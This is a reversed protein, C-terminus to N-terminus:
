PVEFDVQAYGNAKLTVPKTQPAEGVPSLTLYLTTAKGTWKYTCFFWGDEDSRGSALTEGKINRLVVKCGQLVQTTPLGDYTTTAKAVMGGVGPVKKFANMSCVSDSASEMGDSFAFLYSARDPILPQLTTPDIADNGSPGGRAYGTSRKLGYDLHMNLYVFGTSPVTLTVSVTRSSGLRQPAYDSLVIQTSDVLFGNGPLYCEQGNPGPVVSVGDYAHIPQAGQTVYPYPITLNLTVTTGPRGNYFLNFYTQGPNSANLRYQPFNQTDQTFLLRFERCATTPDLDYTCLSSDTVVVRTTPLCQIVQVHRIENCGDSVTWRREVRKPCTGTITDDYTITVPGCLDSATPTGTKAPDIDCDTCALNVDGPWAAIPPVTDRVEITASCSAANGCADVATWTRTVRYSQPCPGPSTRDVYTMRPSPDCADSVTAEPFEPIAPCEIPSQVAPCVIVPPTRDETWTYTVRAEATNGCRDTVSYTFVQTKACLAGDLIPGAICRVRGSIDGDCLDRAVVTDVCTPRVPNCGLDGGPPLNLLEPATTDETWRYVVVAAVTNGCTDRAEYTFAQSYTCRATAEIPGPTCVLTRSVDGDCADLALVEQSCTPRTPNCGLDGGSPLNRLVPPTVDQRWTYVVQASTSNGCSDVAAYTFTQRRLCGDTVIPGPTCTVSASVDGDCLDRATVTTACVPLIPNCGLEGGVPLNGLVPPTTDERWTLTVSAEAANGCTDVVRYTFVQSRACPGNELIPGAICVVRTSLDGDCEDLATVTTSCSPRTPNCGLDRATPLNGLVPATTDQRWTYVVQASTSNGCSDVAAYTFTQRRLCGDTVIPGPTCTVSASVDGDCLDRATVTTACVPLTPNCGLEGGAPLNGLVPPTTDERWTLTVSAEAANGCTDVVRYTFVQSRACPGNELIPGATCVVRASLDGDCDDLATVTTSCSPRTPNCGLDRATPLNGLVPATTDQTWTYVVEATTANGCTDAVSYTFTQSRRCSGNGVIPGAVCVVRGSIDGDCDDLATVTRSCSPPTPNCGLDGGTPLNGLVPRVTDVFAGPAECITVFGDPATVELRVLFEACVPSTVTLNPLNNAGVITVPSGPTAISWLFTNGTPDGGYAFTELSRPCGAPPPVICQGPAEFVRACTSTCGFEDVVTLGVTITALGGGQSVPDALTVSPLDEGASVAPDGNYSVTWAYHAMGAPGQYLTAGATQAGPANLRTITCPPLARVTATQSCTSSCGGSTAPRSITVTLTYTGSSGPTVQVSPGTTPGVLTGNGTLTWLFTNGTGDTQATYTYPTAPCVSTPGSIACNPPLCVAAAALAVDQNGGKGDLGIFRTHYPSGPVANASNGDGWDRRSTIHGGWALVVRASTAQFTIRLRQSSDAVSWSGPEVYQLSTITGNYITFLKEAAPLNSFSTLPQPQGGPTGTTTSVPPPPIPFTAPTGFTGVLGKIPDVTENIRQFSTVYDITAKSSKRIDWEIDVVHSGIALDTLVLRYPISEGEVYHSKQANSNGNIWDVPSIPPSAVGGNQAQDLNGAPAGLARAGALLCLM